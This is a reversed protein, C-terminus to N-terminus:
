QGPTTCKRGTRHELGVPQNDHPRTTDFHRLYETNCDWCLERYINGHLETVQDRTLGSRRHLGDVNTSVVLKCLGADCLAKIAMHGRTPLAQELTVRFEPTQGKDRLTWVGNPGRYDPIQASTSIGAGTYVVM